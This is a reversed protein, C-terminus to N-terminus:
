LLLTGLKPEILSTIAESVLNWVEPLIKGGIIATCGHNVLSVYRWYVMTWCMVTGSGQKATMVITCNTASWMRKNQTNNHAPSTFSTKESHIYPQLKQFNLGARVSSFRISGNSKKLM